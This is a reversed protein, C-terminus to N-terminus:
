NEKNWPYETRCDMVIIGADKYKQEWPKYLRGNTVLVFHGSKDKRENIRNLLVQARLTVILDTKGSLYLTKVQFIEDHKKVVFDHVSGDKMRSRSLLKYGDKEMFSIVKDTYVDHLQQANPRDM